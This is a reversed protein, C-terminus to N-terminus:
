FRYLNNEVSYDIGNILGCVLAIYLGFKIFHTNM